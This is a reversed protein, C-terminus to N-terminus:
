KLGELHDRLVREIKPALSETEAELWARARKEQRALEYDATRQLVHRCARRAAAPVSLRDTLLDRRRQDKAMTM